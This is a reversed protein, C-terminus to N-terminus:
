SAAQTRYAEALISLVMTGDPGIEEIVAKLPGDGGDAVM